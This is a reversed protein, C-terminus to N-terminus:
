PTRGKTNWKLAHEFAGKTIEYIEQDTAQPFAARAATQITIWGDMLEKWDQAFTRPTDNNM